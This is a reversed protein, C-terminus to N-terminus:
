RENVPRQVTMKGSGRDLGRGDVLCHAVAHEGTSLAKARHESKGGRLGAAAVDIAAIANAAMPPEAAAAGHPGNSIHGACKGNGANPLRQSMGDCGPGHGVNATGPPMGSTVKVVDVM